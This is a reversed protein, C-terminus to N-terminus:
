QSQMSLTTRACHGYCAKLTLWHENRMESPQAVVAELWAVTALTLPDKSSPRVGHIQSCFMIEALSCHTGIYQRCKHPLRTPNDATMKLKCMGNRALALTKIGMAYYNHSDVGAFTLIVEEWDIAEDKFVDM